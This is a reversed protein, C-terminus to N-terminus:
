ISQAIGTWIRLLVSNNDCIHVPISTFHDNNKDSQLSVPLKEASKRPLFDKILNWSFEDLPLRVTGHPSLSVHHVCSYSKPTKRVHRFASFV